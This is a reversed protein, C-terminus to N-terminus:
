DLRRAVARLFELTQEEQNEAEATTSGYTRNASLKVIVVERSPDVYVFQNYVGIASFEGDEGQPIWWQFGYGFPFVHGGVIVQGPQLHPADSNISAAVWDTPVIQKAGWVGQNRFLEGIKAFDRATLNLGGLAMEMGASDLIWYGPSELGLPEGLKEFMYDAIPRGTVAVLLMGIAQTDASNYQCFTGPETAPEIQSVFDALSNAGSMASGLRHIDSNPDSYDESWRAGSSMQLICKISVGAYASGSLAPVYQTIPDDISGILGEDVAIGILASVFSKAVSWSIWRVDRGGTLYYDEFCVAGSKLVLLASTDTEEIFGVTSQDNGGFKFSAPLSMPQGDPFDFPVSAAPMDRTPFNKEMNAFNEHQPEGVYLNMAM